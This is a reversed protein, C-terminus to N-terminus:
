QLILKYKIGESSIWMQCGGNCTNGPTCSVTSGVQTFGCASGSMCICNFSARVSTSNGQVIKASMKDESVILKYGKQATLKGDKIAVGKIVKSINAKTLIKVPEATQSYGFTTIALVLSCLIFNKM